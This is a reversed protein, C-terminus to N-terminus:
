FGLELSRTGADVESGLLGLGPMRNCKVASVVM